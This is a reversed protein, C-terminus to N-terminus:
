QQRPHSVQSGYKPRIHISPFTSTPQFTLTLKVLPDCTGHLTEMRFPRMDFTSPSNRTDSDWLLGTCIPTLDSMVQRRKLVVADPEDDELFDEMEDAEDDDGAEEEGDSDLDEGEEPEEWEAESDYDYNLSDFARTFPNRRLRTAMHPNPIRSFTGYYPPRVDEAFRLYKVSIRSLDNPLPDQQTLDVPNAFSGRLDSIIDKVARPISKRKSKRSVLEELASAKRKRTSRRSEDTANWELVEIDLSAVKGSAMSTHQKVFFPPFARDFESALSEQAQEDKEAIISGHDSAISNRRSSTASGHSSIPPKM